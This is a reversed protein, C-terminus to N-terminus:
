EDLNHFCQPRQAAVIPVDAIRSEDIRAFLDAVSVFAM